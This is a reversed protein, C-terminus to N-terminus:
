IKAVDGIAQELEELECGAHITPNDKPGKPKQEATPPHQTKRPNIYV